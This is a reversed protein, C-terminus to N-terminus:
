NTGATIVREALRPFLGFVRDISWTQGSKGARVAIASKRAGHALRLHATGSARPQHRDRQNPSRATAHDDVGDFVIRGRPGADPGDAIPLADDQGRRQPGAGCDGAASPASADDGAARPQRRLLHPHRRARADHVTFRLRSANSGRGGVAGLYMQQVARERQGRRASGDALVRGQHLVTVREAFGFAVDMDHEILLVAIAPDLRRAARADRREGARFDPWRSTWCCCGRGAPWRRAGSRAQAPGRLCIHRRRSMRWARSGSSMSCDRPANRSSPTRRCSAPADHVKATWRRARWCCTRWYGHARSVAQHDSIDARHRAGGASAAATQHRREWRPCDRRREAGARRQDRNFLTTKGAGNPGILAHREGPQM